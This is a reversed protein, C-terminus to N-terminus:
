TDVDRVNRNYLNDFFPRSKRPQQITTRKLLVKSCGASEQCCPIKRTRRPVAKTAILQRYAADHVIEQPRVSIVVHM